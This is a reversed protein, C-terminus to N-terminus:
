RKNPTNAAKELREMLADVAQTFLTSRIPMELEYFPDKLACDTYLIYIETLANDMDPTGEEASEPIFYRMKM